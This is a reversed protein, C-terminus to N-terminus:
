AAARESRMSRYPLGDWTKGDLERGAAHKGLRVLTVRAGNITRVLMRARTDGQMGDDPRWHGWQKFHFPVGAHACQDRLGCAWAPNMPRAKHGSEGGVIVWDLRRPALRLWRRLDLAGLLPECSAFRVAAPYELLVPLRKEAWHQTEVTTGLWVNNPWRRGWPVCDGVHEPRKTLLLWDLFPTAEILPWLRERWPNLDDRAEFVDAMSACFVRRREGAAAADRNWKLPERWHADSFFRRPARAGWLGLGVRKAWSEAYCHKCAPSVKM